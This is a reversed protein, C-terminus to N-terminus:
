NHRQLDWPSLFRLAVMWPIQYFPNVCNLVIANKHKLEIHRNTTPLRVTLVLDPNNSYCTVKPLEGPCNRKGVQYSGKNHTFEKNDSAGPLGKLM